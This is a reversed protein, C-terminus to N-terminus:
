AVDTVGRTQTRATAILGWVLVVIIAVHYVIDPVSQPGFGAVIAYTGVLTGLLGFGQAALGVLRTWSPRLWTLGLGVMLVAAIVSEAIAAQQHEYGSVFFGFHVAAAAAFAIAEGLMFLRITQM